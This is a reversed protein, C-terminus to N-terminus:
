SISYFCFRGEPDEYFFTYQMGNKEYTRIYIEYAEEYSDIEFVDELSKILKAEQMDRFIEKEMRQGLCLASVAEGAEMCTSGEYCLNDFYKKLQEPSELSEEGSPFDSRLVYVGTSMWDGELTGSGDKAHYVADIDEMFVFMEGQQQYVTRDGQYIESLEATKKGVLEEYLVTDAWFNGTFVENGNENYLVGEGNRMGEEFAGEYQRSGNPWYQTGQGEYLNKEFEGQYVKRGESDYLTGDGKVIGREVNGIYATYGSRARIEVKGKCFKLALSDYQYVPDSRMSGMFDAPRSLFLYAASLGFFLLLMRHILPRSIKWRLFRCYDEEDKPRLAALKKIVNMGEGEKWAQRRQQM